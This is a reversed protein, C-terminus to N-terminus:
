GILSGRSGGDRRGGRIDGGLRASVFSGPPPFATPDNSADISRSLSRVEKFEGWMEEKSKASQKVKRCIKLAMYAAAFETFHDPWAGLDGGYANDDSVYRVYIRDLDTFWTNAEDKYDILPSRFYSDSCLAVTRVWDTPKTFGRLFGWEPEIAPDFDAEVSRTAFNWQGQQLCRRILGRDWVNDLLFRPEHNETTSALPSEGLFELAENYIELKTAM